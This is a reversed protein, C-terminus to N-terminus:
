CQYVTDGDVWLLLTVCIEFLIAIWTKIRVEITREIEANTRMNTANAEGYQYLDHVLTCLEKPLM